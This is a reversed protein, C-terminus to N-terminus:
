QTSTQYIAISSFAGHKQLRTQLHTHHSAPPQAPLWFVNITDSLDAKVQTCLTNMQLFLHLLRQYIIDFTIQNSNQM